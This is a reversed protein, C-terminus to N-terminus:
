QGIMSLLYELADQEPELAIDPAVGVGDLLKGDATYYTATPVYLRWQDQLPFEEASLMAGATRQGIITARDNRKLGYVIPECTSATRSDTLVYVRGSYPQTSPMIKLQLGQHSHLEAFFSDLNTGSFSPFQSYAAPLPPEPHDDYWRNNLFVGGYFASDTLHSALAMAAVDGGSNGRLDIILHPYQRQRIIQFASDIKHPDLSFSRFKLYGIRDSKEALELPQEQTDPEPEELHEPAEQFLYFHTFPLKRSYYFFGFLLDLDDMSRSAVKEMKREFRGSGRKELLRQNFIQQWTVRQVSDFIAPYDQLPEVFQGKSGTMRARIDMATDRLTGTLKGDVVDAYFYYDSMASRFVGRLKLTDGKREIIGNTIRVFSGGKFENTFLQALGARWWGLVARAANNRTHGTFTSDEAELAMVTQFYGVDQSNVQLLWQGELAHQQQAVAPLPLFLLLVLLQQLHM